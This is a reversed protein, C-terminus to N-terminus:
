AHGSDAASDRVRQLLSYPTGRATRPLFSFPFGSTPGTGSELQQLGSTRPFRPGIRCRGRGGPVGTIPPLELRGSQRSRPHGACLCQQPRPRLIAPAPVRLFPSLSLDWSQLSSLPFRSARPSPSASVPPLVGFPQAPPGIRSRPSIQCLGTAKLAGIKYIQVELSLSHFVPKPAVVSPGLTHLLEACFDPSDPRCAGAGGWRSFDM